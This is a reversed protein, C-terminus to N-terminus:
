VLAYYDFPNPKTDYNEQFNVKKNFRMCLESARMISSLLYVMSNWRHMVGKKLVLRFYFVSVLSRM